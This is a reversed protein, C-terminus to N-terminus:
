KNSPKIMFKYPVPKAVVRQLDQFHLILMSAMETARQQNPNQGLYDDFRQQSFALKDRAETLNQILAAQADWPGGPQWPDPTVSSINLGKEMDEKTFAGLSRGNVEIDYKGPKLNKVTLMYRNLEEPIPIFWFQLAGLPGFNIPLGEDLRTFELHDEKRMFDTVSCGSTELVKLDQCDLVASSVELPAGLGKLIAFAMALQGLDNLHIGDEAHLTHKKRPDTIDKNADFMRKYIGRMTGQIDIAGQGLSRSIAMGEDCMKQLFDNESQYPDSATIAASCIYVRVKKKKCEEVIGRISDLYKQKHEEDAKTGWGIDNIGYAVTLLTAGKSFVDRELRALGGAATDGGWGANIYRVKRNPYRMLTYHEIIRGYTRAATISDGLFVVTDGDKIAFDAPLSIPAFFVIGLSCLFYMVNKM